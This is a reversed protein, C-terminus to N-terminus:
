QGFCRAHSSLIVGYGAANPHHSDIPGYLAQGSAAAARMADTADCFSCNKTVGCHDRIEARIRASREMNDSQTTEFFGPEEVPLVKLDGPFEYTTVQSLLYLIRIEANPFDTPLRDIVDKTIDLSRSFEEETLEVAASQPYEFFELGTKSIQKPTRDVEDDEDADSGAFIAMRMGRLLYRLPMLVRKIRSFRLESGISIFESERIDDYLDNGEYFLFLVEDIQEEDFEFSTVTSLLPLCTVAENYTSVSGYGGRGAVLYADGDKDLKKILGYDPSDTEFEHGKGESHSDGLVLIRRDASPFNSVDDHFFSRYCPDIMATIKKGARPVLSPSFYVMLLNVVVLLGFTILVIWIIDKIWSKIKQM